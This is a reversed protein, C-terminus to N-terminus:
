VLAEGHIRGGAGELPSGTRGRSVAVIEALISIATEAPTVGGIDLGVPGHIRALEREDFGLERLADRRSAQSRRSGLLGVYPAPSRLACSLAPVDFKPDHSVIVIPTTDSIAGPLYGDPWESILEDADPIRERTAFVPRPDVVVTRFNLRKALAAIEQALTTAGVVILTNKAPVDFAFFSGEYPIRVHVDRDGRAIADAVAAFERDPKWIVLKLIGGCGTGGAIEDATTLNVGMTRTRGDRIAQLCTQVVDGEHCGAGINGAVRGRSDVAVTTGIPAPSTEYTEVLTALALPEGGNLLRSVTEFVDRM